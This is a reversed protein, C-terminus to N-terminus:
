TRGVVAMYVVSEDLGDVGLLDNAKDDIFGGVTACGLGLATSELYLNQALHGADLLVYRYGREGYKVKTRRFMATMLIAVASQLVMEQRHTIQYIDQRFQGSRLLELTNGEVEYHYVGEHLGTVSFAAIYLEIPYLAGASPSARLSLTGHDLPTAGTIGNAFYLLRELHDLELPQDAYQRITRRKRMTEEAGPSPRAEPVALPVRPRHPYKKFALYWPGASQPSFLSMPVVRERDKTNEHYVESISLLDEKPTSM